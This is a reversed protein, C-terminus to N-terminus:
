GQTQVANDTAGLCHKSRLNQKIWKFFLEVQWRCKYLQAILLPPLDFNNTLFVLVKGTEADKYGVRRLRDPYHEASGQLTPRPFASYVIVCLGGAM